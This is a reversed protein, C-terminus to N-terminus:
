KRNILTEEALIYTYMYMYLVCVNTYMIIAVYFLELNKHLGRTGLSPNVEAIRKGRVILFNQAAFHHQFYVFLKVLM